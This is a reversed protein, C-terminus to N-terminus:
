DSFSATLKISGDTHVFEEVGIAGHRFAELKAAEVAYAQALRAATQGGLAEALQHDIFDWILSHSGDNHALVGVEYKCGPVHIAHDCKGYDGTAVGHKYAADEEHYDNVWRGYWQYTKQGRRFAFGLRKCAADLAELDRVEIRM